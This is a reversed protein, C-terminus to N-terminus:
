QLPTQLPIDRQRRGRARRHGSTLICSSTVSSCVLGAQLLATWIQTSLSRSAPCSTSSKSGGGRVDDRDPLASSCYDLNELYNWIV